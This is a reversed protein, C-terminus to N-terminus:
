DLLFDFPPQGRHASPTKGDHCMGCYNTLIDTAQALTAVCPDTTSGGDGYSIPPTGLAAEPAADLRPTAAHEDLPQDCAALMIAMSSIAVLLGRRTQYKPNM